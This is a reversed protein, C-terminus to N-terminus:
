LVFYACLTAHWSNKDKRNHELILRLVLKKVEHVSTSSFFLSPVCHQNTHHDKPTKICITRHKKGADKHPTRTKPETDRRRRRRRRGGGGGGVQGCV